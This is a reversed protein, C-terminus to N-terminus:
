GQSVTSVACKTQCASRLEFGLGLVALGLDVTGAESVGDGQVLNVNPSPM